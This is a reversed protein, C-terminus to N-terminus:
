TVEFEDAQLVRLADYDEANPAEQTNRYRSNIGTLLAEISARLEIRFRGESVEVYYGVAALLVALSLSFRLPHRRTLLGLVAVPAFFIRFLSAWCASNSRRDM